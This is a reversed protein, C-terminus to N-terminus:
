QLAGVLDSAELTFEVLEMARDVLPEPLAYTCGNVVLNMTGTVCFGDSIKITKGKYIFETKGDLISQLFRLSEFPLLNIEDLVITKGEVMANQLASPIFEPKGNVFKFDEMLDQPLLASHCVMCNDSEDMAKTTKGTGQPGYYVKFRNNIKTSPTPIKSIMDLILSFEKSKMKEIVSNAYPSDTMKFYNSVYCMIADASGQYCLTNVFRYNPTFQFESFFDMIKQCLVKLDIMTKNPTKNSNTNTNVKTPDQAPIPNVTTSGAVITDRVENFIEMIQADSILSKPTKIAKILRESAKVAETNSSDITRFTTITEDFNHYIVGGFTQTITFNTGPIQM